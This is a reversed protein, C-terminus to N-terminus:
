SGRRMWRHRNVTRAGHSGYRSKGAPLPRPKAVRKESRKVDKGEAVPTKRRPPEEAQVPSEMGPEAERGADGCNQRVPTCPDKGARWRIRM